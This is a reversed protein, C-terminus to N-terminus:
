HTRGIGIRAELRAYTRAALPSGPGGRDRGLLRLLLESLEDDGYRLSYHLVRSPDRQPEGTM